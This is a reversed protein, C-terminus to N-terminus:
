QMYHYLIMSINDLGGREKAALKLTEVAEQIDNVESIIQLITNDDVYSHLGDTCLLLRDNNEILIQFSDVEVNEYYGVVRTIINRKPHNRAEQPTIEGQEVMDWVLSHDRTIQHIKNDRILYGRSDGVNALYVQSSVIVASTVTTGMGDYERDSRAKLFLQRNVETIANKLKLCYDVDGDSDLSPNIMKIIQKVCQVSAYEGKKAGGMGDAVILLSKKIRASEFISEVDIAAVSDENNVRGNGIDSCLGISRLSIPKEKMIPVDSRKKVLLESYTKILFGIGVVLGLTILVWLLMNFSTEM